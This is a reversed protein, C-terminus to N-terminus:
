SASTAAFIEWNRAAEVAGAEEHDACDLRLAAAGFAANVFGCHHPADAGPYMNPGFYRCTVCMRQPPIANRLQLARILKILMKLLSRQEAESLEALAAATQSLAATRAPQGLPLGERGLKVIAARGDAPDARREILGKRELASLSDTITPQRVNLHRALEQVRLGQPRARLLHLIADQAPNIGVQAASRRADARMLVALRELGGLIKQRLDAAEAQM